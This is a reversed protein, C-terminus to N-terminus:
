SVFDLYKVGPPDSVREDTRLNASCIIETHHGSLGFWKGRTLRIAYTNATPVITSIGRITVRGTEGTFQRIIIIGDKIIGDLILELLYPLNCESQINPEGDSFTFLGQSGTTAISVVKDGPIHLIQSAVDEVTQVFSDIKRANSANMKTSM